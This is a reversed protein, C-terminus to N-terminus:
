DVYLFENSNLLAHCLDAIAEFFPNDRMQDKPKSGRYEKWTPASENEDFRLDLIRDPAPSPSGPLLADAPLPSDTIAFRSVLGHFMSAASGDRGGLVLNRGPASLSGAFLHEVTATQMEAGAESLDQAYFVAQGGKAGTSLSVAVYYPTQLPIRLASALVEYQPNGAIDEGTLQLILNRPQHASKESTIGLSWGYSEATLERSNGNWRSAITRVSANPYLSELYLVAEVTFRDGEAAGPGDVELKDLPSPTGLAIARTGTLASAAADTGPLTATRSGSRTQASDAAGPSRTAAIRPEQHRLFELAQRTEAPGPKRGLAARFVSDVVAADPKTKTGAARSAMARARAVPFANNLMMLSQPATTTADRRACSNFGDPGDFANLFLTRPNRLLKQYVARRPIEGAFGEGGMRTDLEGSAFLMADRIQEADLRRVRMRWLLQNGPDRAQAVANPAVLSAQRYAASNMLLKHAKKFSWGDAVFRRALWDLLAPHSPRAGQKGFDNTTPVVGQGFHYHWIRNAIVRTTFRNGPDTLWAALTARRGTSTKPRTSPPITAPGPAVISLFGPPVAEPTTAGPITTPPAEPGIDRVALVPTLPEPKLHDFAALENRLLAYRKRTDDKLNGPAKRQAINLQLQVFLKVQREGPTCEDDTKRYIEQLEPPFKSLATEGSAVLKPALITEMEERIAATAKEWRRLQTQYRRKEQPTAAVIGDDPCIPAFFAKLRYYDEQSLPDFKHDHCKACNLSLGLFVDSSIDTINDLIENWQKPVNRQNSEYPWLRLYGTATIAGPDHGAIEDGALQLRVFRDYPMDDNFAAIVWDRYRWAHPRYEDTKFGNSEGYRVLDLWHRGWREGYRPSDLLRDILDQWATPSPDDIFTQVEDATPPLGTLDFTARRILTRRDAEPAPSIGAAELKALIFRDVPTRVWNENDVPPPSPASLREFFWRDNQEACLSGALPSCFVAAIALVAMPIRKM